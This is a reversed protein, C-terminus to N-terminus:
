SEAGGFHRKNTKLTNLNRFYRFSPIQAEKSKIRIATIGVEFDSLSEDASVELSKGMAEFDIEEIAKM